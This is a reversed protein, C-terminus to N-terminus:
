NRFAANLKETQYIEIHPRGTLVIRKDMATYVAEQSYSTNGGRLIRVNGESVIKTISSSTVASEEVKSSAAPKPTFYVQMRDSYITLDPAEVKVNNNFIAINKEYDVELPGDCIIVIKEKKSEQKDQTEIDLRVNKELAVQKLATQGRAGEGSLNMDQRKLNIADLTSVVQQKRDWDLSDTTMKTGSSTTIIVNDELHVVGSKKDFRGKDATLNINDEDAYHNGVVDKLKVVENVIDASKGSLDWAKKGKDGYGSLSFDGIQQEPDNAQPAPKDPEAAFIGACSLIIALTLLVSKKHGM